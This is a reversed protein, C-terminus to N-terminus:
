GPHVNYAIANKGGRKVAYMIRDAMNLMEDASKPIDTFTLVGISFTVPWHNMQMEEVLKGQMQSIIVEADAPGVEPLLIAFEDGGVRAIVDTTRLHRQMGETVARLVRDGTSHGYIDNITKFNDVDIYAMTIPYGYKASRDIERRTFAHFFRANIAGTVFDTRASAREHEVMKGLRFSYTALLFFGLRIAANWLHIIPSSYRVGSWYEVASWLIASVIAFVIGLQESVFWTILAIPFLYFFSFSIESGTEYDLLAVAALLVLGMIILFSKHLKALSSILKTV